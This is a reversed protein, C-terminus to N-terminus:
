EIPLSWSGIASVPHQLLHSRCGTTHQENYSHKSTVNIGINEDDNSVRSQSRLCSKKKKKENNLAGVVTKQSLTV